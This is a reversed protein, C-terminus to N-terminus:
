KSPPYSPPAGNIYWVLMDLVMKRWGALMVGVRRIEKDEGNGVWMREMMWSMKPGKGETTGGKVHGSTVDM